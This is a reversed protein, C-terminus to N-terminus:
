VRQLNQKTQHIMARRSFVLQRRKGGIQRWLVAARVGALLLARIKHQTQVQQLSAPNGNVQIKPGLNSIIDKYISDLNSLVSDDNIDFHALQRQVQNIREGLMNLAGSSRSLKKELAIMGIVYKTVQMNRNNGANDLQEIMSKFGVQLSEYGGFIDLPSDGSTRMISHLSANFAAADPCLGKNAIKDVLYAAQCIAAFALSRSQLNHYPM